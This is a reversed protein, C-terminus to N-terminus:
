ATVTETDVFYECSSLFMFVQDVENALFRQVQIGRKQIRERSGFMEVSLTNLGVALAADRYLITRVLKALVSHVRIGRQEDTDRVFAQVAIVYRQLTPEGAALQNQGLMEHSSEDPVWTMPFVGVVQNGDSDRPPRNLVVLDSDMMKYRAVLLSSVNNPFVETSDDIM